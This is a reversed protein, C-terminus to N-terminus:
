GRKGDRKERRHWVAQVIAVVLVVPFVVILMAWLLMYFVPDIDFAWM